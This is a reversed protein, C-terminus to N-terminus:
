GWGVAPRNIRVPGPSEDAEIMEHLTSKSIGCARLVEDRRMLRRGELDLCCM